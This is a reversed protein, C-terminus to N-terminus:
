CDEESVVGRLKAAGYASHLVGHEIAAIQTSPFEPQENMPMAALSKTAEIADFGVGPVLRLVYGTSERMAAGPIFINEGSKQRAIEKLV